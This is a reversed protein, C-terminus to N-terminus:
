EYRLAEIPNQRSARLAPFIGSVFVLVCLVVLFVILIDFSFIPRLLYAKIGFDEFGVPVLNVLSVINFAILTGWLTGKSFIYFTELFFQMVIHRRRAGLAMKIGIERTREKVVAYMLNTVGVAGILLTLAGIISLFIEIGKFIKAGAEYDRITNWFNVANPDDDAFRYKRGLVRRIQNEMFLAERPDAPSVHIRDLFRQFDIQCFTSFPIYVTESDPGQYMSSQQKKKMVGIVTFPTREIRIEKGVPNTADGFLEKAVSWGIFAVRRANEQDLDNIFRGGADPIQSRMQGFCPYVGNVSRNTEKGHYSLNHNNNSEPSIMAIGPIQRELLQLDEMHINIRRARPLGQYPKSTQGRSVMIMTSGLGKFSVSGANSLGRGFSMLLLLSLAGWAIAFTILNAKKQRKRFENWYLHLLQIRM